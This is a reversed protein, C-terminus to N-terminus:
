IGLFGVSRQMLFCKTPKLKLGASQIRALVIELRELHQELTASFVIVDDIYALCIEFSIGALIMDMLRQFTAGANCLSFPMTVFRYMGERCIFATKDRDEPAVAVQHYSSRLDFTTFRQSGSMADLCVDTHLLAYADKKTVDNLGRYDLCCRFEGSRKRVLVVNAAWPSQAPEIIGQQLM